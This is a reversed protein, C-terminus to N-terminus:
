ICGNPFCFDIEVLYAIDQLFNEAYFTVNRCSEKYRTSCKSAVIDSIERYFFHTAGM